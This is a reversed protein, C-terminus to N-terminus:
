GLQKSFILINDNTEGADTLDAYVLQFGAKQLLRISSANHPLTSARVQNRNFTMRVHHLLHLLIEYGYGQKRFPEAIAYGISCPSHEGDILERNLHYLHLIGVPQGSHLKVIWDCGGRKADYYMIELLGVAYEDLLEKSRFRTDVFPSDDYQFLSLYDSYNNWQTLEYRLRESDPLNNFPFWCKKGYFSQAQWKQVQELLLRAKPTLSEENLM